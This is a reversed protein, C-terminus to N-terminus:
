FYHYLQYCSENDFTVALDYTM